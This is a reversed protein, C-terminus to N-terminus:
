IPFAVFESEKQLGQTSKAIHRAIGAVALAAGGQVLMKPSKLIIKNILKTKINKPAKGLHGIAKWDKSRLYDLPLINDATKGGITKRSALAGLTSCYGKTIAREKNLRKLSKNREKINLKPTIWDTAAATVAKKLDYREFDAL